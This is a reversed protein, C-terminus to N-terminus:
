TNKCLLHRQVFKGEKSIAFPQGQSEIQYDCIDGFKPSCDRDVAEVRVVQLLFPM